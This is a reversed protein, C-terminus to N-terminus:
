VICVVFKRLADNQQFRNCRATLFALTFIETSQLETNEPYSYKKIDLIDIHESDASFRHASNLKYEIEINKKFSNIKDYNDAALIFLAEGQYNINKETLVPIEADFFSINKGGPIKNYDIVIVDSKEPLRCSIIEGKEIARWM